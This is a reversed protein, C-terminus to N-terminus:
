KNNILLYDQLNNKKFWDRTILGAWADLTSGFDLAIKGHKALYVGFDKGSLSCGYIVILENIEKLKKFINKRNKLNMGMPVHVYNINVGLIDDICNSKILDVVPSVIAINNNGIIKKFNLINGLDKDRVVMHDAILIADKRLSKLYNLNISWKEYSFSIRKSIENEPSMLGIVNSYKLGNNIVELVDKKAQHLDDYGWTIKLKEKTKESIKNTLFSIEGDGFRTFSFPTKHNIHNKVLEIFKKNSLNHNPYVIM